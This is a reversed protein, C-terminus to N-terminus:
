SAWNQLQGLEEDEKSKVPRKPENKPADPLKLQQPEKAPTAMMKLDLEEQEIAELEKLM